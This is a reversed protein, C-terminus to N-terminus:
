SHTPKDNARKERKRIAFELNHCHDALERRLKVLAKKVNGNKVKVRELTKADERLRVRLQQLTKLRRHANDIDFM